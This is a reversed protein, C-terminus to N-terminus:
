SRIDNPDPTKLHPNTDVPTKSFGGETRKKKKAKVEDIAERMISTFREEDMGAITERGQLTKSSFRHRLDHKDPKRELYAVKRREKTADGHKHAREIFGVKRREKTNESTEENQQPAIKKPSRRPGYFGQAQMSQTQTTPMQSMPGEDHGHVRPYAYGSKQPGKDGHGGGHGSGSMKGGLWEAGLLAAIIGAASGYKKALKYIEPANADSGKVKEGPNTHSGGPDPNDPGHTGKDRHISEPDNEPNNGTRQGRNTMPYPEGTEPDIPKKDRHESKPDNEPNNGTRQGRNTKPYEEGTDPDIASKIGATSPNDKNLPADKKVM